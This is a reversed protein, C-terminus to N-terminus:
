LLELFRDVEIGAARILSRLTGPKVDKRGHVPVSLVFRHGEKKLMHHSGEIRTVEFGLKRFADIVRHGDVSPLKSM